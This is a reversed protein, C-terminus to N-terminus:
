EFIRYQNKTDWPVKGKTVIYYIVVGLAWLDSFPGGVERDLMEPTVYYTTGVFTCRHDMNMNSKTM